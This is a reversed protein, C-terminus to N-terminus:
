DNNYEKKAKKYIKKLGQIMNTADFGPEGDACLEPLNSNFIKAIKSNEKKIEYYNEYFYDEMDLSFQLPDYNGSFLREFMNFIEKIKSQM